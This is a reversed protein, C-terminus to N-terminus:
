TSMRARIRAELDAAEKALANEEESRSPIGLQSRIAAYAERRDQLVLIPTRPRPIQVEEWRGHGHRKRYQYLQFRFANAAALTPFTLELTGKSLAAEWVAEYDNVSM